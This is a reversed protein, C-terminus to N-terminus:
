ACLCSGNGLAIQTIDSLGNTSSDGDVVLVPLSSNTGTVNNGLQGNGNSDGATSM